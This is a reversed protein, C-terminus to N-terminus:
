GRPALGDAKLGHRTVSALGVPRAAQLHPPRIEVNVAIETVTERRDLLDEVGRLPRTEVRDRQGIVVVDAARERQALERRPARARDGDNGARLDRSSRPM